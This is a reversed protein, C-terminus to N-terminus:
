VTRHTSSAKEADVLWWLSRLACIWQLLVLLSGLGHWVRLDGGTARATLIREAVGFEQLLGALAALLLWPLLGSSINPHEARQGRGWLLLALAFCVSAWSQLQFLKAAMPGAVAPNGFFAFLMPVAAFSLATIGGWWVAALLVPTRQFFANM